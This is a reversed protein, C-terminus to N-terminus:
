LLSLCQTCCYVLRIVLFVCLTQVSVAITGTPRYALFSKKSKSSTCYNYFSFCKRRGPTSVSKTWISKQAHKQTLLLIKKKLQNRCQRIPKKSEGPRSSYGNFPVKDCVILPTLRIFDISERKLTDARRNITEASKRGATIRPIAHVRKFQEVRGTNM